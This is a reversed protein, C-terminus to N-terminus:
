TAFGLAQAGCFLIQSGEVTGSAGYKSGSAANLTNPVHRFEHLYIGDIKVSTGSFLNNDKTGREAAQRVNLMYTSDMKLKSMALPTLFAHYTEEGGDEKVGRIYFTLSM